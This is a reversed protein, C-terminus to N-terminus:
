GLGIWGRAADSLPVLLDPNLTIKDPRNRAPRARVVRGRRIGRIGGAGGQRIGRCASGPKVSRLITAGTRRPETRTAPFGQRRARLSVQALRETRLPSVIGRVQRLFEDRGELRYM